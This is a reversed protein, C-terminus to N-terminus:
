YNSVLQGREFDLRWAGGAYYPNSRVAGLSGCEWGRGEYTARFGHAETVWHAGGNNPSWGWQWYAVGYSSRYWEVDARCGSPSWYGVGAEASPTLTLLALALLLAALTRRM